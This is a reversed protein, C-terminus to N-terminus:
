YEVEPQSNIAQAKKEDIARSYREVYKLGSHGMLDAVTKIDTKLESLQNVAFSHRACHWTIKKTIGANKVWDKLTKLAGTHSPLNFITDNPQQPEGILKLLMPSLDITNTANKSKKKTKAQTYRLKLNAFDVNAFTLEKVDCWRLGSYLSFLFARKVEQNPSHARALQAIEDFSLIEKKLGEDRTAKIGDTPNKFMLEDNIAQRIVQKFKNFYNYPTEGNLNNQLYSYFGKCLKVDLQKPKITKINLTELYKTFWHLSYKIIRLDTHKYDAVYKTFYAIFDVNKKFTPTYEYDKAQLELEKKARISEALKKNEKNQERQEPTRAPKLNIGLYEKYRKGNNTIDLFLSKVGNSKINARLKVGM